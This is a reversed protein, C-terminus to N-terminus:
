AFVWGVGNGHDFAVHVLGTFFWREVLGTVEGLDVETRCWRCRRRMGEWRRRRCRRRMEEWRRRCRRIGEWAVDVVFSSM